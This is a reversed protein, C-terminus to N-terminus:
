RTQGIAEPPGTISATEFYDAFKLDTLPDGGTIPVLARHTEKGRNWVIRSDIAVYINMALFFLVVFLGSALLCLGIWGIPENPIFRKM